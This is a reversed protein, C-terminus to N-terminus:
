GQILTVCNGAPDAVQGKKVWGNDTKPMIVTGGSEIAIRLARDLDPVVIGVTFSPEDADVLAGNPSGEPTQIGAYGPGRSQVQWGFVASYFTGLRDIDPGSIDFHGVANHQYQQNQM